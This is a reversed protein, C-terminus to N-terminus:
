LISNKTLKTNSSTTKINFKSTKASPVRKPLPSGSHHNHLKKKSSFISFATQRFQDETLPREKDLVIETDILDDPVYNEPKIKELQSKMINANDYAVINNLDEVEAEIDNSPGKELKIQEATLRSFKNILKMGQEELRGIFENINHETFTNNRIKSLFEEDMGITKFVKEIHEKHEKLIEILKRYQVKCQKRVKEEHEIKVLLVEAEEASKKDYKVGKLSYGMLQEKLSNIRSDLYNIESSLDAINQETGSVRQSLDQFVDVVERPQHVGIGKEIAEFAIRIEEEKKASINYENEMIENNKLKEELKRNNRIIASELQDLTRREKEKSLIFQQLDKEEHIKNNVEQVKDFFQDKLNDAKHNLDRLEEEVENKQLYAQSANDITKEIEEQKLRIDEELREAVQNVLMRDRRLNDVRKRLEDNFVINENLKHSAQEIKNELGEIERTLSEVSEQVAKNKTKKERQSGLKQSVEQIKEELKFSNLLEENIKELYVKEESSRVYFRLLSFLTTYSPENTEISSLLDRLEVMKDEELCETAKEEFFIKTKDNMAKSGYEILRKLHKMIESDISLLFIIKKLTRKKDIEIPDVDAYRSQMISKSMNFSASTTMGFKRKNVLRSSPREEEVIIVHGSEEM